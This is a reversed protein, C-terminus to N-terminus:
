SEKRGGREALEGQAKQRAQQGPRPIMEPEGSAIRGGNSRM